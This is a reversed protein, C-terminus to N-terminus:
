KPSCPQQLAPTDSLRASLVRSPRPHLPHTIVSRVDDGEGWGQLARPNHRTDPPPAPSPHGMTHCALSQLNQFTDSYVPLIPPGVGKLTFPSGGQTGQM